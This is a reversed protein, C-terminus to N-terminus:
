VPAFRVRRPRFISPEHPLMACLYPRNDTKPQLNPTSAAIEYRM